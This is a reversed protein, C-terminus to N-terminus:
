ARVFTKAYSRAWIARGDSFVVKTDLFAAGETVEEVIGEHFEAYSLGEPETFGFVRAHQGPLLKAASTLQEGDRQDTM